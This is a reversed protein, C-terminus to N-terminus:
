LDLARILMEAHRPNAEYRLGAETLRLKRNLIRIERMCDSSEGIWGRRKIEFRAALENEYWIIDNKQASVHSITGM